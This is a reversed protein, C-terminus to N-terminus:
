EQKYKEIDPHNFYSFTKKSFCNSKKNNERNESNIVKNEKDGMNENKGIVTNKRNDLTEDIVVPYLNSDVGNLHKENKIM